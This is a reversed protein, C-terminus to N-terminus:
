DNIRDLFGFMGQAPVWEVEPAQYLCISDGWQVHPFDAYRKHSFHANPRSLPFRSPLTIRLRERARLPVGGEIREFGSCDISVVLQLASGETKPEEIDLLEFSGASAKAIEKLQDVAWVQGASRM